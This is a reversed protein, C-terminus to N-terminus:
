RCLRSSLSRQTSSNQGSFSVVLKSRTRPSKGPRKGGKFRWLSTLTSIKKVGSSYQNLISPNLL